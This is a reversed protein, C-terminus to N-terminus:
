VVNVCIASDTGSSLTFSLPLNTIGVPINSLVLFNASVTARGVENKTASAIATESPCVAEDVIELCVIHTHMVDLDKPNQRSSDDGIGGHTAAVLLCDGDILPFAYGFNGSTPILASVVIIANVTGGTQYVTSDLIVLHGDGSAPLIMMSVAFVVAITIGLVWKIM